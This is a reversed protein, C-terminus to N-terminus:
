TEIRPQVDRHWAEKVARRAAPRRHGRDVILAGPLVPDNSHLVHQRGANRVTVHNEAYALGGRNRLLRTHWHPEAGSEAQDDIRQVGLYTERRGALLQPLPKEATLVEDSDLIFAWDGVELLELAANRQAMQSPWPGEPHIIRLRGQYTAALVGLIEHTGDDSAGDEAAGQMGAWAGDVVIVPDVGADFASVVSRAILGRDNWTAIVAVIRPKM